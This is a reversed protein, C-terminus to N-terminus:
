GRHEHAILVRIGRQEIRALVDPPATSDTVILHKLTPAVGNTM